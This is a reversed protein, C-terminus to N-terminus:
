KQGRQWPLQYARKKELFRAAKLLMENRVTSTCNELKKYFSGVNDTTLSAVVREIDSNKPTYKIYSYRQM